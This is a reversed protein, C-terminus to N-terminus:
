REEVTERRVFFAAWFRKETKREVFPLRFVPPAVTVNRREDKTLRVTYPVHHVFYTFIVVVTTREGDQM